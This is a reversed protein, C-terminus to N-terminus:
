GLGRGIGRGNWRRGHWRGRAVRSTAETEAISGGFEIGLGVRRVGWELATEAVRVASDMETSHILGTFGVDHSSRSSANRDGFEGRVAELLVEGRREELGEGDVSVFIRRHTRFGALLALDFIEVVFADDQGEFLVLHELLISM